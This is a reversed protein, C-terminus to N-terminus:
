KAPTGAAALIQQAKPAAQQFVQAV